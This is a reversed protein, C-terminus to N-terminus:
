SGFTQLLSYQRGTGLPTVLVPARMQTERLGFCSPDEDRFIVGDCAEAAAEVGITEETTAYTSHTRDASAQRDTYAVGSVLVATFAVVGALWFALPTSPQYIKHITMMPAYM